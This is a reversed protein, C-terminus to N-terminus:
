KRLIMEVIEKPVSCLATAPQKVEVISRNSETEYIANYNGADYLKGNHSCLALISSDRIQLVRGEGKGLVEAVRHAWGGEILKDNHSCLSFISHPREAIKKSLRLNRFWFHIKKYDGADHLSGDHSCLANITSDRKAVKSESFTKFIYAKNDILRGDYLDGQHSCLCTIEGKEASLDLVTDESQKGFTRIIKSGTADYLENDHVCIDGISKDREVILKDNRGNVYLFMKNQIAYVLGNKGQTVEKRTDRFEKEKESKDTSFHNKAIDEPKKGRNILKM